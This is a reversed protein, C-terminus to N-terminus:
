EYFFGTNLYENVKQVEEQTGTLAADANECLIFGSLTNLQKLQCLPRGFEALNEDVVSYYQYLLYTGYAADMLSIFTGPAGKSICGPFKNKIADVYTEQLKNQARFLNAPTNLGVGGSLGASMVDNLGTEYSLQAQLPDVIAQALLIDVGIKAQGCFLLKNGNVGPPSATNQPGIAIRAMGQTLDYRIEYGIHTEDILLSPDLPIDGWPGCHFTYTSFPAANMFQGRTAAQPHKPIEINYYEADSAGRPLVRINSGSPVTWHYYGFNIKSARTFGSPFAVPMGICSVIYQIPNILAEQVGPDDYPSTQIDVYGSIDHMLYYIFNYLAIDDMQYYTVSGVQQSDTDEAYGTIGVIYSHNTSWYIPGTQNLRTGGQKIKAGYHSDSIYEDYQSASRLVYHTQSGIDTKYTALVDCTCSIYWFGQKSTIDTIFYYRNFDPVYAYNKGIPNSGIELKFTPEMLSTEDILVCSYTTGGGSPRKTSNERKTLSYLTVNIAM